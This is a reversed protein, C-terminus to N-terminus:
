SGLPMCVNWSGQHYKVLYTSSLHQFHQSASVHQDNFFKFLIPNYASIFHELIFFDLYPYVVSPKSKHPQFMSQFQNIHSM